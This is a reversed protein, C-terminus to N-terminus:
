RVDKKNRADSAIIGSSRLKKGILAVPDFFEEADSSTEGASSELGDDCRKSLITSRSSVISGPAAVDNGNESGKQKPLFDSSQEMSDTSKPQLHGRKSPSDRQRVFVTKTDRMSKVAAPRRSSLPMVNSKPVSQFELKRMERSLQSSHARTLSDNSGEETESDLGITRSNKSTSLAPARRTPRSRTLSATKVQVQKKKSVGAITQRRGGGNSRSNTAPQQVAQRKNPSGLLEEDSNSDDEEPEPNSRKNSHSLAEAPRDEELQLQTRRAIRRCARVHSKLNREPESDVEMDDTILKGAFSKKAPTRKANSAKWEDEPLDIKLNALERMARTVRKKRPTEAM